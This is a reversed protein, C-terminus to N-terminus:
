HALTAKNSPHTLLKNRATSVGWGKGQTCGRKGGDKRHLCLQLAQTQTAVPAVWPASSALAAPEQPFSEGSLPNPSTKPERECNQMSHAFSAWPRRHRVQSNTRATHAEHLFDKNDNTYASGRQAINGGKVMGACAVYGRQTQYGHHCYQAESWESLSSCSNHFM